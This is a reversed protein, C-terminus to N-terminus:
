SKDRYSMGELVSSGLARKGVCGEEGQEIYKHQTPIHIHIFM